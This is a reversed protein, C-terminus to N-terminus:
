AARREVESISREADISRQADGDTGISRDDVARIWPHRIHTWPLARADTDSPPATGPQAVDGATSEPHRVHPHDNV